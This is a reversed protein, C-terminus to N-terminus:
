CNKLNKLERKEFFFKTINKENESFGFIGALYVESALILTKKVSHDRLFFEFVKSKGKPYITCRSMTMCVCVNNIAGNKGNKAWQPVISYM